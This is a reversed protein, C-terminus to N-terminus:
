LFSPMSIPARVQDYSKMTNGLRILSGKGHEKEVAAVIEDMSFGKSVMNTNKETGAHAGVGGKRERERVRRM